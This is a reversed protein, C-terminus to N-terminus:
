SKEGELWEAVAQRIIDEKTRGQEVAKKDIKQEISPALLGKISAPLAVTIKGVGAEGAPVGSALKELFTARGEEIYRYFGQGWKKGILDRDSIPDSWKDRPLPEFSELLVWYKYKGEDHTLTRAPPVNVRVVRTVGWLRYEIRKTNENKQEFVLFVRMGPLVERFRQDSGWDYTRCLAAEWCYGSCEKGGIDDPKPPTINLKAAKGQDVDRRAERCKWCLPDAFPSTCKDMWRRNNYLVRIVIARL